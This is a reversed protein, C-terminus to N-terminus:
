AAAKPTAYQSSPMRGETLSCAVGRETKSYTWEAAILQWVHHWKGNADKWNRKKFAGTIQADVQHESADRFDDGLIADHHMEDLLKGLGAKYDDERQGHFIVEIKQGRDGIARVVLAGVQSNYRADATMKLTGTRLEKGDFFEKDDTAYPYEAGQKARSIKMDESLKAFDIM